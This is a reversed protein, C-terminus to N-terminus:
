YKVKVLFNSWRNTENQMLKITVYQKHTFFFQHRDFMEMARMQLRSFPDNEAIKMIYTSIAM